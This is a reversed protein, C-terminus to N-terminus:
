GADICRHSYVALFAPKQSRDAIFKSSHVKGAITFLCGVTCDPQFFITDRNSRDYNGSLALCARSDQDIVLAQEPLPQISSRPKIRKTPAAANASLINGVLGLLVACAFIGLRLSAYANESSGTRGKISPM